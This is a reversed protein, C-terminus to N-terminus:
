CGAQLRIPLTVRKPVGTVQAFEKEVSMRPFRPEIRGLAYVYSPPQGM